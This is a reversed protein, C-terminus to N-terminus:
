SNLPYGVTFVEVNCTVLHRVNGRIHKLRNILLVLLKIEEVIHVM